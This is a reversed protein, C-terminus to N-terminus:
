RVEANMACEELAWRPAKSVPVVRVWPSQNSWYCAALLAERETKGWGPHSAMGNSPAGPAYCVYGGRAKSRGQGGFHYARWYTVPDHVTPAPLGM